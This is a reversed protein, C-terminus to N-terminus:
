DLTQVTPSPSDPNNPPARGSGSLEVRGGPCENAEILCSLPLTIGLIDRGFFGSRRITKM